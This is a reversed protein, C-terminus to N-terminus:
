CKLLPKIPRRVAENVDLLMLAGCRSPDRVRTQIIHPQPTSSSVFTWYLNTIVSIAGVLAKERNFAAVEAKM